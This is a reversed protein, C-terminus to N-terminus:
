IQTKDKKLGNISYLAAIIVFIAAPSRYRLIAGSNPSTIGIIIFLSIGFFLFTVAPFNEAKGKILGILVILLSILLVLNELSALLQIISKANYFLPHAITYFLSKGIFVFVNGSNGMININSGATPLHYVLSYQTITDKNSACFLTDKQHSHEWYTYPTGKKISFYNRKGSVKKVLIYNYELRVFKTSDMLFIGGKALDSFEREREMVAQSLSKNKILVAASNVAVALIFLFGFFLVTKRQLKKYKSIGFFLAFYIVAYFLLYPKLLLSIFILPISWVIRAINPGVTIIKKIQYVSCGLFFVTLGEKLLGGTYLWLTPFFCLILFLWIEKGTFYEKFSKYLFTLGIFSLFCSFLAHVFYSRFAIFHLLSHIRIVIRNDNYFFDRLQGNDWNFTTTICTKYFHSGESDDQLGFMMKLYEPFNQYAFDNMIRADFYFKGADFKEIGGYLKVFMFYFAPVAIAKLIFIVPFLKQSIHEDKFLKFFSNTYILASFILLYISFAIM